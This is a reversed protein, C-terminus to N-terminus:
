SDASVSVASPVPSCSSLCKPPFVSPDAVVQSGASTLCPCTRVPRQDSLARALLALPPRPGPPPGRLASPSCLWAQRAAAPRARQRACRLGRMPSVETDTAGAVAKRRESLPGVGLLPPSGVCGALQCSEASLSVAPRAM